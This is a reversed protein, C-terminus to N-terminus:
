FNLIAVAATKCVIVGMVYEDSHCMCLNRGVVYVYYMSSEIGHLGLQEIPLKLHAVLRSDDHLSTRKLFAIDAFPRFYNEDNGVAGTLSKCTSVQCM